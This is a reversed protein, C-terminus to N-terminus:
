TGPVRYGKVRRFYHVTCYKSQGIRLRHCNRCGCVEPGCEPGLTHFWALDEEAQRVNFLHDPKVNKPTAVAYPCAAGGHTEGFPYEVCWLTGCVRCQVLRTRSSRFKMVRDCTALIAGAQGCRERIADITEPTATHQQCVCKKKIRM